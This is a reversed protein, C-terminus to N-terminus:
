KVGGELVRVKNKKSLKIGILLILPSTIMWFTFPIAINILALIGCIKQIKTLKIKSIKLGILHNSKWTNNTFDIYQKM